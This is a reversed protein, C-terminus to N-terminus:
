PNKQILSVLLTPLTGQIVISEQFFHPGRRLFGYDFLVIIIQKFCYSNFITRLDRVLEIM